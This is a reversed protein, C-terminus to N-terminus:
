KPLYMSPRVDSPRNAARIEEKIKIKVDTWLDSTLIITWYKRAERHAFKRELFSVERIKNEVVPLHRM